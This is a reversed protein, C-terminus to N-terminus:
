NMQHICVQVIKRDLNLHNVANINSLENFGSESLANAPRPPMRPAKLLAWNKRKGMCKRQCADTNSTGGGGFPFGPDM